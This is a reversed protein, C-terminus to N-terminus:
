TGIPTDLFSIITEWLRSIWETFGPIFACAIAGLPYICFITGVIIAMLGLGGANNFGQMIYCGAWIMGIGFALVIILVILTGVTM